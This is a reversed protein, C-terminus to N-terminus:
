MNLMALGASITMEGEVKHEGAQWDDRYTIESSKQDLRFKSSYLYYSKSSDNKADSQPERIVHSAICCFGQGRARDIAMPNACNRAKIGPVERLPTVIVIASNILCGRSCAALIENRIAIGAM